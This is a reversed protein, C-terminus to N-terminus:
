DYFERLSRLNSEITDRNGVVPYVLLPMLMIEEEWIKNKGAGSWFALIM